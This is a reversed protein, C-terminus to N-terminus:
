QGEASPERAYVAQFDLREILTYAPWVKMFMSDKQAWTLWDFEIPYFQSKQLREGILVLDPRFKQLDEAVARRTWDMIENLEREEEHSPRPGSGHLRHWAGPVPWITPFRSGWRVGAEIVLPFGLSPNWGLAAITGGAAERQILEYLPSGKTSPYRGSSFILTTIVVIGLFSVLRQTPHPLRRDGVLPGDAALPLLAIFVLALVPVVHYSFGRMQGLYAGFFGVAALWFTDTVKRETMGLRVIVYIALTGLLILTFRHVLFPGLPIGFGRGYTAQAIPVIDRLYEPHLIPVSMGYLLVVSVLVLSDPRIAGSISRGRVVERLELLLPVLLFHPKLSLGVGALLGAVTAAMPGVSHGSARVASAFLYSLSLVVALHERQGFTGKPVILSTLFAGALLVTWLHPEEERASRTTNICLAISALVMVLTSLVFAPMLGLGTLKSLLVPPVHLYFVLPPNTEVLDVYLRAGDLWRDTAYLYWASDHNITGPLHYLLAGLWVFAIISPAAKLDRILSEERGRSRRWTEATEM